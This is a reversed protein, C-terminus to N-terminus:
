VWGVVKEGAFDVVEEHETVATPVKIVGSDGGGETTTHHLYILPLHIRGARNRANSIELNQSCYNPRESSERSLQLPSGNTRQIQVSSNLNGAPKSQIVGWSHLNISANAGAM